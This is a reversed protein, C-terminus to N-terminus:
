SRRGWISRSRSLAPRCSARRMQANTGQWISELTRCWTRAARVCPNSPLEAPVVRRNRYRGSEHSQVSAGSGLNFDGSLSTSWQPLYVLLVAGWWMGMLTGTGGLVMAMAGLALLALVATGATMKGLKRLHWPLAIAVLAYVDIFGYTALTGMWDYITEGNVHFAILGVPLLM